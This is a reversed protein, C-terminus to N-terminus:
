TNESPLTGSCCSSGCFCPFGNPKLTTDGYSFSLEEDKEINKSAFFCLRHLLAGAIRVVKTLLNGGDCSHYIFRAVNGIRTADINIRSCAVLALEDYMIQRRRVEPTTLVEGAYECVFQGKQILEEAFLCWGKRWVM